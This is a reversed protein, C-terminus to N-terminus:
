ILEGSLPLASLIRDPIINEPCGAGKRDLFVTKMGAKQPGVIDESLSDGVFVAEKPTFGTKKLLLEYFKPDPKYCCLSESTYVGDTEIGNARLNELLPATDTNSGIYVKYRGRLAVLGKVVDPFAKRGTLSCLMPRVDSGADSEIGYEEYLQQLGRRFIEEETVFGREMTDLILAKHIKKWRGYFDKPSLDSNLRRLIEAAADVSGTGTSVLTGYADFIIARIM